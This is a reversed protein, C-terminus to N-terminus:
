GIFPEGSLNPKGSARGGPRLTQEDISKAVGDHVINILTDGEKWEFPVSGPREQGCLELSNDELFRVRFPSCDIHAPLTVLSEMQLALGIAKTLKDAEAPSFSLGGNGKKIKLETDNVSVTFAGRTVENM